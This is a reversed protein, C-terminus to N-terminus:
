QSLGRQAPDSLNGINRWNSDKEGRVIRLPERAFYQQGGAPHASNKLLEPKDSTAKPDTLESNQRCNSSNLFLLWSGPALLWSPM